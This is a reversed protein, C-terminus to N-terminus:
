NLCGHLKLTRRLHTMESVVSTVSSHGYATGYKLKCKKDAYYQVLILDTNTQAIDLLQSHTLTQRVGNVVAPTFDKNPQKSKSPKKGFLSPKLESKNFM